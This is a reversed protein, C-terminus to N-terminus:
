CCTQMSKLTKVIQITRDKNGEGKNVPPKKYGRAERIANRKKKDRNTQKGDILTIRDREQKEIEILKRETM